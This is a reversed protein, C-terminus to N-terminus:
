PLSVSAAHLQALSELPKDDEKPSNAPKAKAGGETPSEPLVQLVVGAQMEKPEPKGRQTNAQSEHMEESKAEAQGGAERHAETKAQAGKFRM